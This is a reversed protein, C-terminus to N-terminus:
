RATRSRGGRRPTARAVVAIAMAGAISALLPRRADRLGVLARYRQAGARVHGLVAVM